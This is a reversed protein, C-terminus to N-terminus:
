STHNRGAENGKNAIPVVPKQTENKDAVHIPKGSADFKQPNQGAQLQANPNKENNTNQDQAM